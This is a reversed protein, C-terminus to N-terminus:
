EKRRKVLSLGVLGLGLMLYTDPEPVESSDSLSDPGEPPLALSFTHPTGSAKPLGSCDSGEACSAGLALTGIAGDMLSNCSADTCFRLSGNGQVAGGQESLTFSPGSGDATAMHFVQGEPTTLTGLVHPGGASFGAELSTGGVGVIMGSFMLNLTYIGAASGGPGTLQALMHAEGTGPLVFLQAGGPDDFSLDRVTNHGFLNEVKLGWGELAVLAGEHLNRLDYIPSAQTSAAVTLLALATTRLLKM